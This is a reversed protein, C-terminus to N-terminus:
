IVFGAFVCDNTPMIRHKEIIKHSKKLSILREFEDRTVEISRGLKEDPWTFTGSTKFTRTMHFNEGRWEITTIANKLINCFAVCAGDCFGEHWFQESAIGIYRGPAGSGHLKACVLIITDSEETASKSNRLIDVWEDATKAKELQRRLPLFKKLPPSRKATKFRSRCLWNDVRQKPVNILQAISGSDFGNQYLELTKQRMEYIEFHRKSGKATAIQEYRYSRGCKQSCYKRDPPHVDKGCVPCARKSFLEAAGPINKLRRIVNYSAGVTQCAQGPTMGARCLKLVEFTKGQRIWIGNWEVKEGYRSDFCCKESCYKKNNWVQQKSLEKGCRPCKVELAKQREECDVLPRKSEKPTAAWACLEIEKMTATRSCGKKGCKKSCYKRKLSPPLEKGCVPCKRKLLLEEAGAIRKLRKIASYHAGITQCAQGPTMGACCLKLVEFTKGQRIWIGNWEVKEGYRSDASCKKSCYRKNIWMQQKSLEKGCHQCKQM